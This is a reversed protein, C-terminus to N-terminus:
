PLRLGDLLSRDFRNPTIVDSREVFAACTNQITAELRERIQAVQLDDLKRDSLLEIVLCTRTYNGIQPVVRYSPPYGPYPQDSM